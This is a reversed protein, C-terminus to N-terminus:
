WLQHTEQFLVGTDVTILEIPLTATGILHVLVCGEAGFGTAFAVRPAFRRAAWALVEGAPAHELERAWQAIQNDDPVAM